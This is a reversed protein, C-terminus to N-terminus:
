SCLILSMSNPAKLGKFFCKSYSENENGDHTRCVPFGDPHPQLELLCLNVASCMVTGVHVDTEEFEPYTPPLRCNCPGVLARRKPPVRSQWDSEAEDWSKLKSM